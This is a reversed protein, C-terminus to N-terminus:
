EAPSYALAGEVPCVATCRGCLYCERKSADRGALLASFPLLGLADPGPSVPVPTTIATTMGSTPTVPAAQVVAPTSGAPASSTTSRTYDCISNTDVDTYLFCKGPYPCDGKGRPCVAACVPFALGAAGILVGLGKRM